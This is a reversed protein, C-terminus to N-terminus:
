GEYAMSSKMKDKNMVDGDVDPKMGLILKELQAEVVHNAGGSGNVKPKKM